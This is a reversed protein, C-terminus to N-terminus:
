PCDTILYEHRMFPTPGDQAQLLANWQAADIEGPEACLRIVYDDLQKRVAAM